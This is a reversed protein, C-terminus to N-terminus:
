YAHSTCSRPTHLFHRSSLHRPGPPNSSPCGSHDDTRVSSPVKSHWAFLLIGEVAGAAEVSMGAEAPDLTPCVIADFLGDVIARLPASFTANTVVTPRSM